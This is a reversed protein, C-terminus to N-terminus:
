GPRPATRSAHGDDGSGDGETRRHLGRRHRDRRWRGPRRRDHRRRSRPGRREAALAALGALVSTAVVALLWVVAALLVARWCSRAGDEDGLAALLAALGTVVSVLIPLLLVLVIGWSLGRRVFDGMPGRM